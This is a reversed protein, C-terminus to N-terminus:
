GTRPRWLPMGGWSASYAELATRMAEEDPWFTSLQSVYEGVADGWAALGKEGVPFIELQREGPLEADIQDRAELVYPYDAYYWLSRGLREASRRTLRHDIHGGLTLPCVVRVDLPLSRELERSLADVLKEDDPALAGFIAEESAYLSVGNEARRYICDQVPFHRYAAGLHRCAGIDEERRRAVADSGCEWRAHLSQAFDSLGGEPPDGACLTWIATREGAAAQGWILAGCSLAADDLHPSLYIWEM